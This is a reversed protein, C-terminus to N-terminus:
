TLLLTPSYLIRDEQEFGRLVRVTQFCIVNEPATGVEPTELSLPHTMLALGFECCDKRGYMEPECIEGLKAPSLL